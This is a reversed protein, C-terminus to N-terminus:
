LNFLRGAGLATLVVVFLVILGAIAMIHPREYPIREPDRDIFPLAFLLLTGFLPVWLTMSILQQPVLVLLQDLPLYFWEPVPTYTVTQQSAADDLPVGLAIALVFVVGIAVASGISDRATQYPYFEETEIPAAWISDTPIAPYDPEISREGLDPRQLESTPRGPARYGRLYNVYSGFEGHRLLYYMHGAVTVAILSSFVWVHLGFTRTLTVPGVFEGGRWIERVYLGIIPTYSVLNTVVVTTWYAAQDWPLMAGTISIGLVLVFLLSGTIWNMERPRKYSGSLFTRLMHMGIVALLVYCGYLHMGRVIQGYEDHYKLWNLTQWGETTSPVYIMTLVIGTVFQNAILVLTMSGLAYAWGARRPVAHLLGERIIKRHGSRDDMWDATQAVVRRVPPFGLAALLTVAFSRLRNM